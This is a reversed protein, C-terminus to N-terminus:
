SPIHPSFVFGLMNLCLRRPIGTGAYALSSFGTLSTCVTSTLGWRDVREPPTPFSWCTAPFSACGNRITTEGPTRPTPTICITPVTFTIVEPNGHGVYFVIDANDVQSDDIGNAGRHLGVAL